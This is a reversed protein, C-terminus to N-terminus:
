NQHIPMLDLVHEKSGAKGLKSFGLLRGPAGAGPLSKSDGSKRPEAYSPPTVHNLQPWHSAQDQTLAESCTALPTPLTGKAKKM